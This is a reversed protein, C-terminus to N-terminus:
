SRLLRVASSSHRLGWPWQSGCSYKTGRGFLTVNLFEAKSLDHKHGTCAALIDKFMKLVKAKTFSFCHTKLTLHSRLKLNISCHALLQRRNQRSSKGFYPLLFSVCLLGHLLQIICVIRRGIKRKM